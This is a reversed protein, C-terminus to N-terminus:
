SDGETYPKVMTTHNTNHKNATDVFNLLADSMYYPRQASGDNSECDECFSLLITDIAIHYVDM